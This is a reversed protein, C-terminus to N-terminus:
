YLSEKCCKFTVEHRKPSYSGLSIHDLAFFWPTLSELSEVYLEFDNVHHSRVFIMVLIEYQIVLDWYQFTPHKRTMTQHWEEFSVQKDPATSRM